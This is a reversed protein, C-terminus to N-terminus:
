THNKRALISLNTKTRMHPACLFWPPNGLLLNVNIITDDYLMYFVGWDSLIAALPAQGKDQAHPLNKM